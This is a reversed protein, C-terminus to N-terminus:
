DSPRAEDTRGANQYAGTLNNRAAVTYPHGHGLTRGLGDLNQELLLIAEDTRGADQYALALNNRSTLTDPHDPGLIQEQDALNQELFPIAEDTRHVVRYIEALNNRVTMTSEHDPGLIRETDALNQELLPIAEDTRGVEQYALALNNRSTLTDPDDPGLIRERDALIQEHLPIAEDTRGAEQYSTALNSRTTMTDPDNPGLIRETDALNQELLSIAEDTRGAEHYALSLFNRSSLADYHDHGLIREQDAVLQEGLSISQAPSDALYGLFWVAWWRLKIMRRELANGAACGAASEHLAMIQEVLDRAEARDQRWTESLSEAQADLLHAATECIAVLSNSAALNERIVRAVLRHASVTSGDLSFTILSAGALRALAADVAEPGLGALSGERGPLGARGAEHVMSRRVGAASLVALLDMVAGCAGSDDGARVAQLSLLVAAAVGQPYQGAAVPALLEGVPLRHLRDMYTAYALHQSAILAAAQALALPLCALEEALVQAGATDAQGTREALFALAEQETFVDVLVGAGLNAVSQQNSTIIVQAGGAAPLFPQLVEPDTANDFVVLCQDGNAELWHRVARATAETDATGVDLGLSTAVAALGTLVATADEANVWAVLRWQEALRARAYAAALQTKGVGRMGTLAHVVSVRPGSTNLEALLAARPQFGLPEQPIEGVVVVAPAQGQHSRRSLRPRTDALERLSREVLLRLTAPDAFSGTLLGSEQVRHRFADQRAGYERDILRSLPIGVDAADIDLLFVLRPLEAETATGFELETYSMGPKDRVPSGYRTGLVGVYVDCGQVREVCVQASPLNSAPFDAMDVIVHGVASIAREVAAVYPQGTPFERLESTHSIFV